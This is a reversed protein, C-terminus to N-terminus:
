KTQKERLTVENCFKAGIERHRLDENSRTLVERIEEHPYIRLNQQLKLIAKARERALSVAIVKLLSDMNWSLNEENFTNGDTLETRM